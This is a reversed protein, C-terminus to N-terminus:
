ISNSAGPTTARDSDVYTKLLTSLQEVVEPYQSQLHITAERVPGDATSLLNPLMSVADEGANSPLETGIIGVDGYGLDDCLIYIINPAKAGATLASATLLLFLIRKIM